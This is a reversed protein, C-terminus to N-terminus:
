NTKLKTACIPWWASCWSLPYLLTVLGLVLGLASMDIGTGPVLNMSELMSAMQEQGDARFQEVIQQKTAGEPFRSSFFGEFILDTAHGLIKPGSVALVVGIIGFILLAFVRVKDLLLRRVIRGFTAKFNASREPKRMAGHMSM